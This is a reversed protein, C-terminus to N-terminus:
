SDYFLYIISLSMLTLLFAVNFDFHAMEVKFFGFCFLVFKVKLVFLQFMFMGLGKGDGRQESIVRGCVPGM